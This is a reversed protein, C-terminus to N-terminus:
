SMMSSRVKNLLEKNTTHAKIIYEDGGEEVAKFVSEADDRNTLFIVTATKGWNDLRLKQVAEHGSIDPLMVDMLIVDPKHELALAVGEQGSTATITEIGAGEIVTAYMERLAEEDEVILIKRDTM